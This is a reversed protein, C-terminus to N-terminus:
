AATAPAVAKGTAGVANLDDEAKQVPKVSQVAAAVQEAAQAAAQSAALVLAKLKAVAANAADTAAKSATSQGTATAFEAAQRTQQALADALRALDDIGADIKDITRAMSQLSAALVDVNSQGGNAPQATVPNEQPNIPAASPPPDPATTPGSPPNGAKAPDPQTPNQNPKQGANPDPEAAPPPAPQTPEEAWDWDLNDADPHDPKTRATERWSAGRARADKAAHWGDRFGRKFDDFAVVMRAWLRRWWRGTREATSPRAPEKDPDAGADWWERRAARVKARWARDEALWQRQDAVQQATLDQSTERGGEGFLARDIGISLAAVLIGVPGMAAALVAAFGVKAVADKTEESTAM